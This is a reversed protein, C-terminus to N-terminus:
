IVDKQVTLMEQACGAPATLMQRIQTSPLAVRIEM